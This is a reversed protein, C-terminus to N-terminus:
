LTGLYANELYQNAKQFKQTSLYNNQPLILFDAGRFSHM